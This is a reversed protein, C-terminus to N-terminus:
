CRKNGCFLLALIVIGVIIFCPNIGCFDGDFGSDCGCNDRSKCGCKRHSM